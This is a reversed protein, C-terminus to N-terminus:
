PKDNFTLIILEFSLLAYQVVARSMAKGTLVCAVDVIGCCLHM